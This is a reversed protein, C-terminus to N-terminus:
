GRTCTSLSWCRGARAGPPAFRSPGCGPRPAARRSTGIFARPEVPLGFRTSIVFDTGQWAPGALDRWEHQRERREKLATTCIDPLPLPAYSSETKTERRLLQGGVRQHQWAVRLEGADHDVDEWGLGLAEGRRLVLVLIPVYGAYLPDNDRRASELFRRAEEVSWPKPKHSRAKPVRVLAAINRAFTSLEVRRLAAV